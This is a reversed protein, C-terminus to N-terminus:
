GATTAHQRFPNVVRLRAFTQGHQLDETLLLEAGSDLASEIILADWYSLRSSTSRHAASLTLEAHISRVRFTRLLEGLAEVAREPPLPKRLKRTVTAYFEGLVQTSLIIREANDRLLQKAAAQRAPSHSDFLYVFVNTDVFWPDGNMSNTALGRRM